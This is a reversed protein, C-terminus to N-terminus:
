LLVIPVLTCLYYLSCMLGNPVVTALHHQLPGLNKGMGLKGSWGMEDVDLSALQVDVVGCAGM